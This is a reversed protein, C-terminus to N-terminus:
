SVVDLIVCHMVPAAGRKPRFWAYLEPVRRDTGAYGGIQESLRHLTCLVARHPGSRASGYKCCFFTTHTRRWPVSVFAGEAARARPGAELSLGLRLATTTRWQAKSLVETPSEHMATWMTGTGPGGASLMIAQQEPPLEQHLRAAQVAKAASLIRSLLKAYAMDRALRRPPTRQITQVPRTVEAAARSPGM